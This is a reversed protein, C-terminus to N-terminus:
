SQKTCLYSAVFCDHYKTTDIKFGARQLIGEMIWDLTAYESRIATEIDKTFELNAQKSLSEVWGNLSNIYDDIDFSYVTDVLYLKGKPKIMKAINRLGVLKWFDPLHHLAISSVVADVPPGSHEYSLFGGIHFEINKVQASEAKQRCCDLMAESVDVAYVKKYKRAAYLSFAGTGCGIDMVAANNDLGLSDMIVQAEQEFNRIGEHDKDYKAAVKTDNYDVAFCNLEDYHWPLLKSM